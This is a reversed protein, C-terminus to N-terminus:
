HDKCALIVRAELKDLQGRQDKLELRAQRDLTEMQDPLDLSDQQAQRGEHEQSGERDQLVRHDPIELQDKFVLRVVRAVRDKLGQRDLWELHM